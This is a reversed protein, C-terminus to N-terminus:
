IDAPLPVPYDESIEQSPKFDDQDGGSEERNGDETQGSDDPKEAVNDPSTSEGDDGPPAEQATVAFSLLCALFPFRYKM